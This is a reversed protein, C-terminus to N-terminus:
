IVFRNIKEAILNIENKTMNSSLPLAIIYNFLSKYNNCKEISADYFYKTRNIAPQMYFGHSKTLQKADIGNENLYMILEKNQKNTRVYYKAYAPDGFAKQVKIGKSKEFKESLLKANKRRRDILKPLRALQNLIVAAQLDSPKCLVSSNSFITTPDEEKYVTQKNLFNKVYTKNFAENGLKKEIFDRKFRYDLLGESVAPLQNQYSRIKEILKKDKSALLGGGVLSFHKTFSFFSHEGFSGLPRSNIEAGLSQACDEIVTINNTHAFDIINSFDFPVGGFYNLIIADTTKLNEDIFFDPDLNFTENDIDCYHIKLNNSIIPSLAAFCTLPTSAIKGKVNLFKLLMYLCMKASATFITYYESGLYDRFFNELEQIKENEPFDGYKYTFYTEIDNENFDPRNVPIFNPYYIM